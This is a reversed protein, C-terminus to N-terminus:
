IKEAPNPFLSFYPGCPCSIPLERKSSFFYPFTTESILAFCSFADLKQINTQINTFGQYCPILLNAIYHKFSSCYTTSKSKIQTTLYLLDASFTQKNTFKYSTITGSFSYLNIPINNSKMSLMIKNIM